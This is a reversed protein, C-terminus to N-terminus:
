EHHYKKLIKQSFLSYIEEWEPKESLLALHKNITNRDGRRAPGTQAEYAPMKHLKAVTEEMLPRLLEAQLGNEQLFEEAEAFLYNTFNNVMVAALHLKMRHPTDIRYVRRSLKKALMELAELTDQSSAELCFPVSSVAVPYGKSFTQLPYFVGYKEFTHLTEMPTMGSTHCVIGSVAPLAGAVDPLKDDPVALLYFDALPDVDACRSVERAGVDGALRAAHSLHASCVEVIELGAKKMARAIHTAVNGAGIIVVKQIHVKKKM